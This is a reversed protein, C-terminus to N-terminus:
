QSAADNSFNALQTYPSLGVLKHSVANRHQLKMLRSFEARSIVLTGQAPQASVTRGFEQPSYTIQPVRPYFEESVPVAQRPIIRRGSAVQPTTASTVSNQQQWVQWGGVMVLAVSAAVAVRSLSHLWSRAPRLPEAAIADHVRSCFAMDVDTTEHGNVVDRVLHWRAWRVDSEGDINALLQHLEFESLEDDMLASLAEAQQEVKM